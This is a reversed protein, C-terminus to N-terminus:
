GTNMPRLKEKLSLSLLARCRFTKLFSHCYGSPAKCLHIYDGGGFFGRRTFGEGRLTHRM